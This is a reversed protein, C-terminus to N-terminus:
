ERKIIEEIEIEIEIEEIEEIHKQNKFLDSNYNSLEVLTDSISDHIISQIEGLNDCAIVLPAIKNSVSLLKGKLNVLMNNMVEEVIKADHLQNKLEAIRIKKLETDVKIKSIEEKIKEDKLNVDAEKKTELYRIYGQLSEIFLYKGTETKKIIGEKALNRVHRDTIGIIKALEVAKILQGEKILM